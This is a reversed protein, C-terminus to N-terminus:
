KDDSLSYRNPLFFNHFKYCFDLGDLVSFVHQATLRM